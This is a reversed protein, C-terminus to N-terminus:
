TWRPPSPPLNPSPLISIAVTAGCRCSNTCCITGTMNATSNNNVCVDLTFQNTNQWYTAQTSNTAPDLPGVSLPSGDFTGDAYVNAQQWYARWNTGYYPQNLGAGQAADSTHATTCVYTYNSNYTVEDNVAYSTSPAWAGRNNVTVNPTSLTRYGYKTGTVSSDLIGVGTIQPRHYANLDAWLPQSDMGAMVLPIDEFGPAAQLITATQGAGYLNIPRQPFSGQPNVQTLYLTQNLLWTGAPISITGNMVNMEAFYRILGQFKQTIATPTSETTIAPLNVQTGSSNIYSFAQSVDLTTPYPTPTALGRSLTLGLLVALVAFLIRPSLLYRFM